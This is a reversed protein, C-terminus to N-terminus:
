ATNVMWRSFGHLFDHFGPLHEAPFDYKTVADALVAEFCDLWVQRAVEDIPFPLRLTTPDHAFLKACLPSSLLSAFLINESRQRTLSLSGANVSM